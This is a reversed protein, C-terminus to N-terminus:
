FAGALEEEKICTFGHVQQFTPTVGLSEDIYSFTFLANSAPVPEYTQLIESGAPLGDSDLLNLQYYLRKGNAETPPSQSEPVRIEAVNFFGDFNPTDVDIGVCDSGDHSGEYFRASAFGNRDVHGLVYGQCKNGLLWDTKNVSFREQEPFAQSICVSQCFDINPLCALILNEESLDTIASGDLKKFTYGEFEPVPSQSPNSDISGNGAEDICGCLFLSIVFSTCVSRM